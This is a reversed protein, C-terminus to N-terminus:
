VLLITPLTLHTYSVPHCYDLRCYDVEFVLESCNLLRRKVISRLGGVCYHKNWFNVSTVFNQLTYLVQISSWSDEFYWIWTSFHLRCWNIYTYRHICWKSGNKVWTLYKLFNSCFHGTIWVCTTSCAVVRSRAWMNTCPRQVSSMSVCLMPSPSPALSCRLPPKPTVQFMKLM